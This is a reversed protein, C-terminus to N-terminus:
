RSQALLLLDSPSPISNTQPPARSEGEPCSLQGKKIMHMTEIGAILIHACHFRKFGLMPRVIVDIMAQIM